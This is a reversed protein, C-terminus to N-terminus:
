SPKVGFVMQNGIQFPHLAKSFHVGDASITMQAEPWIARLLIATNRMVSKFRRPNSDTIGFQERLQSWSIVSSSATAFARRYAWILIAGRQPNRKGLQWIELPIAVFHEIAYALMSDSLVFCHSEDNTKQPSRSNADISKPLHWSELFPLILGRNGYENQVEITIALGAIRSFSARLDRYNKNSDSKGLDRLYGWASSWGIRRNPREGRALAERGKQVAKNLLWHLLHGDSATPLPIGDRVATYTVKIWRGQSRTRTTVQRNRSPRFPLPCDILVQSLLIWKNCTKGLGLSGSDVSDRISAVREIYRLSGRDREQDREQRYSRRHDSAVRDADVQPYDSSGKLTSLDDPM